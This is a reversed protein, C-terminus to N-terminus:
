SIMAVRILDEEYASQDRPNRSLTLFLTEKPFKMAHEIMPPSFIMQGPKVVIMEPKEISKAPRHFYEMTGSVVYCYHWDSKHYHNGRVAGESSRIVLASRMMHEVLPQIEGRADKFAKELTVLPTKPWLKKEDEDASM